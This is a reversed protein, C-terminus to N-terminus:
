HSYRLHGHNLKPAGNCEFDSPIMEALYDYMLDFDCTEKGRCEEIADVSAVRGNFIWRAQNDDYIELILMTAFPPWYNACKHQSDLWTLDLAATFVSTPGTDHGIYVSLRREPLDLDELVDKILPGFALRRTEASSNYQLLDWYTAEDSIRKLLPSEAGLGFPVERSTSPVTSCIHSMLCDLMGSYLGDMKKPDNTNFDDYRGSTLGIFKGSLPRNMRPKPTMSDVDLDDIVIDLADPGYERINPFLGMALAQASHITRTFETSRFMVQPELPAEGLDLSEAYAARLAQGNLLHQQIGPEVVQGYTCNGKLLMRKGGLRTWGVGTGESPDTDDGEWCTLDRTLVRAGHRGFVVVREPKADPKDSREPIDGWTMDSHCYYLPDEEPFSVRGEAIDALREIHRAVALLQVGDGMKSRKTPTSTASSAKAVSKTQGDGGAAAANADGKVAPVSAEPETTSSASRCAQRDPLNFDPSSPPPMSHEVSQQMEELTAPNPPTSALAKAPRMVEWAAEGKEGLVQGDLRGNFLRCIRVVVGQPSIGQWLPAQIGTDGILEFGSQMLFTRIDVPSAPCETVTRGNVLYKLPASELTSVHQALVTRLPIKAGSFRLITEGCSSRIGSNPLDYLVQAETEHVAVNMNGVGHLPGTGSCRDPHVTFLEAVSRRPSKVERMGGRTVLDEGLAESCDGKVLVSLLYEAVEEDDVRECIRLYRKLDSDSMPLRREVARVLKPRSAEWLEVAASSESSPLCAMLRSMVSLLERAARDSSPLDAEAIYEIVDYVITEKLRAIMATAGEHVRALGDDGASAARSKMYHHNLTPLLRTNVFKEDYHKLKRLAAMLQLCGKTDLQTTTYYLCIKIMKELCRRLADRLGDDVTEIDVVTAMSVIFRHAELPTVPKRKRSSGATLDDDSVLRTTLEECLASFLPPSLFGLKAYAQAIACLQFSQLQPLYEPLVSAAVEFLLQVNGAEPQHGEEEEGNMPRRLRPLRGYSELVSVLQGAHLESLRSVLVGAVVDLVQSDYMRSQGSARAILRCDSVSM